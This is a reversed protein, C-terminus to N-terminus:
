STFSAQVSKHSDMTLTCTASTGTCDGAWGLFREGPAPVATLTLATGSPVGYTCTGFNGEACSDGSPFVVYSRSGIGGVALSVTHGPEYDATVNRAQDMTVTCFLSTGSCAGSWGAFYSEGTPVTQLTVQTGTAFLDTCTPPCDISGPYSAVYGTAAAAGTFTVILPNSSFTATVYRTQSMTVTCTSSTGACDGSWGTFTSSAAPSESLTVLTGAGYQYSCQTGCNVTGPTATVTGVGVGATSVILTYLTTTVCTLTATSSKQDATATYSVKLTGADASGTNCPLGTLGDLSPLGPGAPGAPGTAGQPGTPGPLGQPGIAGAPGTAGAPGAPGQAGTDGKPGTQNWSIATTGNPCNTGADQLVFVHTGNIAANTWCGHIAGSGDVPSSAIAAGAATGGGVLAVSVAATILTM